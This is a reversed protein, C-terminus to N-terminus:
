TKNLKMLTCVSHCINTPFYICLNCNKILWLSLWLYNFIHLNFTWHAKVAQQKEEEEKLEHINDLKWGKGDKLLESEKASKHYFIKKNVRIFDTVSVSVSVLLDQSHNWGEQMSLSQVCLM